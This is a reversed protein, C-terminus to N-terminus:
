LPQSVMFTNIAVMPPPQLGPPSNSSSMSGRNCNLDLIQPILSKLFINTKNPAPLLIDRLFIWVLWAARTPNLPKPHPWPYKDDMYKRHPTRSQSCQQYALSLSLAARACSRVSPIARPRSVEIPELVVSAPGAPLAVLNICM